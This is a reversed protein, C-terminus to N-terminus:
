VFFTSRNTLTSPGYVGSVRMVSNDLKSQLDVTVVYSKIQRSLETFLSSKWALIVGGATRNALICAQSDLLVGMIEKLLSNSVSSLKTEQVCIVDPKESVIFNKVNARKKPDNLGRVNWSLFLFRGVGDQNM